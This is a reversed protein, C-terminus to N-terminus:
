SQPISVLLRNVNVQPYDQQKLAEKAISVRQYINTHSMFIHVNTETGIHIEM